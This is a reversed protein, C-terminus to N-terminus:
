YFSLYSLYNSLSMLLRIKESSHEKAFEGLYCVMEVDSIQAGFKAIIDNGLESLWQCLQSFEVYLTHILKKHVLVFLMNDKSKIAMDSLLASIKELRNLKNEFIREM